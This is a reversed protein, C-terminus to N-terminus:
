MRGRIENILVRFVLDLGDDIMSKETPHTSELIQDFPLPVSVTVVHPLWDLVEM